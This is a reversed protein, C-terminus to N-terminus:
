REHESEGKPKKGRLQQIIQWALHGSFVVCGVIAPSLIALGILDSRRAHAAQEACSRETAAIEEATPIHKTEWGPREFEFEEPM